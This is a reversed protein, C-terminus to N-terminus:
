GVERIVTDLDIDREPEEAGKLLTVVETHKYHSAYDEATRGQDCKM